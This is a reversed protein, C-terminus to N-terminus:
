CCWRCWVENVQVAPQIEAVLHVEAAPQAAAEAPPNLQEVVVEEAAAHPVQDAHAMLYTLNIPCFTLGKRKAAKLLTIPHLV